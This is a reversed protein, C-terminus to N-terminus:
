VATVSYLLFFLFYLFLTIVEFDCVKVRISFVKFGPTIVMLLEFINSFIGTVAVMQNKGIDGNWVEIKLFNDALIIFCLWWLYLM